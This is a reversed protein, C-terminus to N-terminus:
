QALHVLQLDLIGLHLRVCQELVVDDALLVKHHLAELLVAVQAVLEDLLLPLEDDTLPPPINRPTPPAPSIWIHVNNKSLNRGILTIGKGDKARALDLTFYLLM